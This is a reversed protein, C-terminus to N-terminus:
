NLSINFSIYITSFQQHVVSSFRARISISVLCPCPNNSTSCTISKCLAVSTELSRDKHVIQAYLVNQNHEDQKTKTYKRENNTWWTQTNNKKNSSRLNFISYYYRFISNDINVLPWHLIKNQTHIVQVLMGENRFFFFVLVLKCQFPKQRHNFIVVEREFIMYIMPENDTKFFFQVITTATIRLSKDNILNYHYKM